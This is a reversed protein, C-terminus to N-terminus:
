KLFEWENFNDNLAEEIIKQKYVIIKAMTADLSGALVIHHVLVNEKQGIRHLRDEAQTVNGPVWDLEAFVVYSAATLTIGVGAAQINGIFLRIKTDTQFATVAAERDAMTTDGVIVVSCEAFAERIQRAVEKHHCFCVVKENQELAERLHNIVFPLKEIATEKRITSMEEFDVAKGSKLGEVVRDYDTTKIDDLNGFGLFKLLKNVIPKEAQLVKKRNENADIEIVQRTKPPLDTLVDKKLRRIMITSRLKYQLEDLHSAGSFDWGFPGRKAACYRSAYSFRNPWGLPDLNHIIPYLEIPRNQIPTGTLYIKKEAQIAPTGIGGFIAKTRQAQNNKAYHIEDCILVDWTRNYLNNAHRKLIDYNIIVIKADPWNNGEAIDICQCLTSWRRWAKLWERKLTAPCIILVTKPKIHNCAAIAMPTKGLGMEDSLLTSKNRLIIEVGANQFPYLTEGEPVLAKFKTGQASSLSARVDSFTKEASIRLQTEYNFKNFLKSVIGIHSTGWMKLQRDFGFGARRILDNEEYNSKLYFINEKIVLEVKSVKSM